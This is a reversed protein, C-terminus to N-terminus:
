NAVQIEIMGIVRLTGSTPLAGLAMDTFFTVTSAGTNIQAAGGNTTATGGINLYINVVKSINVNTFPLTMTKSGTTATGNIDFFIQASRGNMVIQILKTPSGSWGSVTSTAAYNIADGGSNFLTNASAFRCNNFYPNNGTIVLTPSTFFRCNNFNLDTSNTSTIQVTGGFFCGNFYIGDSTLIEINGAFLACNSFIMGNLIGNSYVNTTNHNILCGNILGHADNAGTTLYVGYTNDVMKGGQVMINGAVIHVGKACGSFSCNYFQNYEGRTDCFIGINCNVGILNSGVFSGEHNAGSSTGVMYQSYVMSGGLSDGYLNNLVNLIRYSTLGVVGIAQVGNQSTGTSNGKLRFQRLNNYDGTINIIAANSTTYLVSNYGEGILTRNSTVTLTTVKYTKASLWVPFGSNIADQIATTDDTTGDGVAGYAEPFVVDFPISATVTLNGSGLVSSGNITKINTGSVLAAQYLTAINDILYKIKGFAELITNSSTFTGSAASLGSLLLPLVDTNLLSIAGTRGNFSSIADTNDVKRWVTGDFIAWDGIKWESIGDLNTTGDVNVIYYHGSTGVSSTLNPTNTSANWVSQFVAGSVLSDWTAIQADTVVRHTTDDNLESLDTPIDSTLAIAGGGVKNPLTFNQDDGIGTGPVIRQVKGDSAVAEISLGTTSIIEKTTRNGIETVEELNQSVPIVVVGSDTVSLLTVLLSNVPASPAFPRVLEQQGSAVLFNGFQDMFILDIRSYGTTTAPITANLVALPNVIAGNILGQGGSIEVVFTSVSFVNPNTIWRTLGGGSTVIQLYNAKDTPDGGLYKANDWITFEDYFGHVIDGAELTETFLNGEGKFKLAFLPFLPIGSFNAAAILENFKSRIRNAEEASLKNYLQTTAGLQREKEGDENTDIFEFHEIM